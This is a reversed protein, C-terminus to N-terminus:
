KRGLEKLAMDLFSLDSWSSIPMSTTVAKTGNPGFFDATYQLNEATLGGNVDFMKLEVYKKAIAGVTAPNVTDKVYKEADAQLAAADAAVRRYETLVAKVLALVTGPNDSAFKTNVGIPFPQLKPLDAAFSVLLSFRDGAQSDLTISDGLELPAGDIQDALMAALRNESGAIILYNPTAQPCKDKVYAKLQAYAVSGESHVAIKKGSMDACGKITASRAYVVTENANRALIVKIAAGKEVAILVTNPSMSGAFAFSGDAVGQTLLEPSNVIPTDITYGQSRMADLAAFLPGSSFSPSTFAITFTKTGALATPAATAATTPASTPAQTPVPTAAVGCASVVLTAIVALATLRHRFMPRM